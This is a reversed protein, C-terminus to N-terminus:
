FFYQEVEQQWIDAHRPVRPNSSLAAKVYTRGFTQSVVAMAGMDRISLFPLVGWGYNDGIIGLKEQLKFRLSDKNNSLKEM